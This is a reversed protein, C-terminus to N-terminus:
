DTKFNWVQGIAEGGKGDKVVVKWYYDKSSTLNETTYSKGTQDASKITAPPNDTGFYVDYTLPDNDVDSADWELSATTSSVVASITPSIISPSFPIYNSVGIGETYFSNASSYDSSNNKSDKANVRWYYAVGKDLSITRNTSTNSISEVINTFDNNKSIQVQYTINDNDPDNSANWKFDISNEICKLNNSPYVLSPTSPAKNVPTPDPDPKDEGSGGCSWLLSGLAIVSFIIKKM